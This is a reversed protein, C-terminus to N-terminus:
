RRRVPRAVHPLMGVIRYLHADCDSRCDSAGFRPIPVVVGAQEAIEKSVACEEIGPLTVTKVLRSQPHILLYDVHWHVKGKKSTALRRHRAVRAGLGARASGVYLYRGRPLMQAGLGGCLMTSSSLLRIHLVYAGGVSQSKAPM